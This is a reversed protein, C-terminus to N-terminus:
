ETREKVKRKKERNKEQGNVLEKRLEGQGWSGVLDANIEGGGLRYGVLAAAM